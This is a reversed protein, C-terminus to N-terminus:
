TESLRSDARGLKYKLLRREVEVDRPQGDHFQIKVAIEGYGGLADAERELAGLLEAWHQDRPQRM